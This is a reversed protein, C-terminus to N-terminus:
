TRLPPILTVSWSSREAHRAMLRACEREDEGTTSSYYHLCTIQPNSAASRSVASFSRLLGARRVSEHDRLSARLGMRSRLAQRDRQGFGCGFGSRRDSPPSAIEAPKWLLVFQPEARGLTSVSAPRCSLRSREIRDRSDASGFVAGGFRHLALEFFPPAAESSVCDNIDSFALRVGRFEALFCPLGGTPDRLIHAGGESGPECIVAVYRGWYREILHQGATAAIRESESPDIQSSLTAARRMRM